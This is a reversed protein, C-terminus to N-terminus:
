WPGMRGDQRMLQCGILRALVASPIGEKLGRLGDDGIVGSYGGM